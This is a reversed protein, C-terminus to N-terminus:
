PSRQGPPENRCDANGAFAAVKAAWDEADRKPAPPPRVALALRAQRKNARQREREAQVRPAHELVLGGAERLQRLRRVYGVPNLVPTRGSAGAMEDILAQAAEPSVGKLIAPLAALHIEMGQPVVLGAQGDVLAFV